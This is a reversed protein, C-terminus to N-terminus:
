ESGSRQRARNEWAILEDIEFNACDAPTWGFVVAINAIM